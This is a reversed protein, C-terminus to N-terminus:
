KEKVWTIDVEIRKNNFEIIPNCTLLNFGTVKVRQGKLREIELTPEMVFDGEMVHGYSVDFKNKLTIYDGVKM